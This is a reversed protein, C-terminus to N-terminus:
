NHSELGFYLTITIVRTLEYLIFSVLTITKIINFKNALAFLNPHLNLENYINYFICDKPM